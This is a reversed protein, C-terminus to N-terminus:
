KQEIEDSNTGCWFAPPNRVGIPTWAFYSSFFSDFRELTGFVLIPGNPNFEKRLLNGAVYMCVGCIILVQEPQFGVAPNPKIASLNGSQQMSAGCAHCVNMPEAGHSFGSDVFIQEIKESAHGLIRDGMPTCYAFTLDDINQRSIHTLYFSKNLTKGIRRVSRVHVSPLKIASVDYYEPVSFRSTANFMKEICIGCISNGNRFRVCDQHRIVISCMACRNSALLQTLIYQTSLFHAM